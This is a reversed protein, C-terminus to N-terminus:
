LGRPRVSESSDHGAPRDALGDEVTDAGPPTSSRYRTLWSWWSLTLTILSFGFALDEVPAFVFRWGIITQPNYRVVQLGTLVGNVILQFLLLIAYSYWFASSVLLRTRLVLMDATIAVLVATVALATYTM